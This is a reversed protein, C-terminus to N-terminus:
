KQARKAGGVPAPTKKLCQIRTEIKNRKRTNTLVQMPAGTFAWSREHANTLARSRGHAGALTLTRSREHANTLAQSHEYASSLAQSREHANMRAWPGGPFALSTM